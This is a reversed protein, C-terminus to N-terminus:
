SIWFLEIAETAIALDAEGSSALEAIQMPSGQRLSLRVGPYREM